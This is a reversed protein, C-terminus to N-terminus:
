DCNTKSLFKSLRKQADDSLRIKAIMNTTEKLCDQEDPSQALYELLHKCTRLANPSNALIQQELDHQKDSLKSYPVVQHVLGSQMAREANFKEATLFYYRAVSEGMKQIIYPSIIAPILGLKVESFCFSTNEAAIVMDCCAVLGCGGGYVNGHVIALTPKPSHKIAYLCQALHMADAKNEDFSQHLSNKMDNLDAGACFSSGNATFTIMRISEDNSFSTVAHHIEHILDKDLSNHKETRNLCCNVIQDKVTVILKDSKM